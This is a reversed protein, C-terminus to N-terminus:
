YRFNLVGQSEPQPGSSSTSTSTWCGAGAGLGLERLGWGGAGSANALLLLTTVVNHHGEALVKYPSWESPSQKPAGSLDIEDGSDSALLSAKSSM